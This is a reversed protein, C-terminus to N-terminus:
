LEHKLSSTNQRGPADWGQIIPKFVEMSSMGPTKHLGILEPEKNNSIVIKYRQETNNAKIVPVTTHQVIDLIVDAMLQIDAPTLEDPVHMIFCSEETEGNIMYEIESRALLEKFKINKGDDKALRTLGQKFKDPVDLYIAEEGFISWM